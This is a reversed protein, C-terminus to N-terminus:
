AKNFVSILCLIHDFYLLNQSDTGYKIFSLGHKFLKFVLIQAMKLWFASYYM